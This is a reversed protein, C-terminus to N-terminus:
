ELPFLWPVMRASPEKIQWWHNMEFGYFVVVTCIHYLRAGNANCYRRLPRSPTEFWWGWWGNIWTCILSFMLIERWQGKHPSNVPSRHNGVCIALWASLSKLSPPEIIIKMPTFPVYAHEFAVNQLAFNRKNWPFSIKARLLLIQVDIHWM